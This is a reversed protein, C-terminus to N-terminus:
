IKRIHKKRKTQNIYSSVSSSNADSKKNIELDIVVNDIMLDSHYYEIAKLLISIFRCLTATIFRSFVLDKKNILISYYLYDDLIMFPLTNGIQSQIIDQDTFTKISHFYEFLLHLYNEINDRHDTNHLQRIINNKVAILAINNHDIPIFGADINHAFDVKYNTDNPVIFLKYTNALEILYDDSELHLSM